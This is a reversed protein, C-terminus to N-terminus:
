VPNYQASKLCNGSRDLKEIQYGSKLLSKNICTKGATNHDVKQLRAKGEFLKM